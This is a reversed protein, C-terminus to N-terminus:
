GRWVEFVGVPRDRGEEGLNWRSMTIAWGDAELTELFAISQPRFPDALLIRGDPTLASELIRRLHPHMAKAYLIDAGLIWDHRADDDWEAWDAQRHTIPVRNREANSRCLELPVAHRDTQVVRAGAGAAVIGPLGTGAGLELVDRGRFEDPRSAIEHALAISSPWLAVGFPLRNMPERLYRSEDEPTLIAGTHLIRWENGGARLVYEELAFEGLTTRLLEQVPPEPNSWETM